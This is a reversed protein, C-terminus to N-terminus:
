LSGAVGVTIECDMSFCLATSGLDLFVSQTLPLVAWPKLRNPRSSIPLLLKFVFLIPYLLRSEWSHKISSQSTATRSESTDHINRASAGLKTAGFSPIEFQICKEYFFTPASSQRARGGNTAVSNSFKSCNRELQKPSNMLQNEIDRKWIFKTM